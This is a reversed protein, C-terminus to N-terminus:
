MATYAGGETQLEILDELVAQLAYVVDTPNLVNKYTEAATSPYIVLKGDADYGDPSAPDCKKHWYRYHERHFLISSEIFDLYESIDAGSYAHYDLIMKAFDLQHVYEFNVYSNLITGRALAGRYLDAGPAASPDGYCYGSTMGFPPLYEAYAAGGHGWYARTIRKNNGLANNYFDFQPTMLDYDGSKLLPWYIHRQNQGVMTMGGWRRYDPNGEYDWTFMGGNFKAPYDGNLYCGEMYRFLAYNRALQWATDADGKGPNIVIGSRDWFGNWWSKTAEHGSAQAAAVSDDLAARWAPVNDYQGTALYIDVSQRTVPAGSRIAWARYERGRYRGTSEGAPELGDGTLIGGFTFGTQPDYRDSFDLGTLEQQATMKDILLDSDDNKHYFLVGGGDYGVTDAHETVTHGYLDLYQHYIPNEGTLEQV